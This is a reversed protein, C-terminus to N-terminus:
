KRDNHNKDERPLGKEVAWTAIQTRANFGLKNLINTVHGEITRESLVLADAIARNSKGQAILAAVERERATLGDFKEKAIQRPSLAPADPIEIEALAFAIAQDLNMARGEAFAANFMADDLQARALPLYKEYDDRYVPPMPTQLQERLVEAAGFLRAAREPLKVTAALYGFADMLFPLWFRLNAKHAQTISEQLYENSERLNGKTLELLGLYYLDLVVERHVQGMNRHLTLNKQLLASAEAYNGQLRAIDGLGVVAAGVGIKDNLEQFIRLAHEYSTKAKHLHGEFYDVVAHSNLALAYMHMDGLTQFLAASEELASRATGFDSLRRTALGLAVLCHGLGFLNGSERSTRIGEEILTRALALDRDLYAWAYRALAYGLWRKGEEGLERLMQISEEFLPRMEVFFGTRNSLEAALHLANARALSKEGGKSKLLAVLRKHGESWYGHRVWFQGLAGGLRLGTEIKEARTSWDLAARFNDLESELRNFWIIQEARRLKPEAEEALKVFFELHRNQVNAREGSEAQALEERAYQRITELMRYRTAGDRTEAIVLSKDVLRSLVDLIGFGLDSIGIPAPATETNQIEIKSNRNEIKPNPKQSKPNTVAEAADLTWGGAFVSVRNLVIREDDSLLAYSWEMAARLTQQRTPATRSGTTLLHFRDDLRAAIQEVSLTKVRAAALELALPMGDLRACIQAIFAKNADTLAFDSQAVRARETFLQIAEFQALDHLPLGQPQGRLDPLALSPVRFTIEGAINLPERSTALIKLDPCSTLLAEALQACADILHECNDLVLLLNKERLYNKLLDMPALNGSARLDFISAVTQPVLAPDALASLEILWVGDPFPALGSLNRFGTLDRAVQLALRTKGCGGSGTLTLLRTRPLGELNLFGPLDGLLRTVEAIEKERGIFRTLALPLNNRETM